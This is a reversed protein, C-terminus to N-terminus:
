IVGGYYLRVEVHPIAIRIREALEQHDLELGEIRKVSPLRRVCEIFAAADNVQHFQLDEPEARYLQVEAVSTVFDRGLYHELLTTSGPSYKVDGGLSRIRAITRRQDLSRNTWIGLSVAVLTVLLMLGRLSYRM